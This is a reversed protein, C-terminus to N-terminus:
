VFRRTWFMPELPYAVSATKCDGVTNETVTRTDVRLRGSILVRFRDMWGLTVFTEVVLVDKHTAPAEPLECHNLPFLKARLKEKWTWPSEVTYCGQSKTEDNDM